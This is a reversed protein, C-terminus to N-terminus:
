KFSLRSRAFVGAVSFYPLIRRFRNCKVICVAIDKAKIGEALGAGRHDTLSFRTKAKCRCSCFHVLFVFVIVHPRPPTAYRNPEPCRTILVM